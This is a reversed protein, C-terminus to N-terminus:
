GEQVGRQSSARVELLKSIRKAVKVMNEHEWVRVVKWGAARLKKNTDIDREKNREIKARWFEANAKPWTGHKPCGHWFCGDIFIAIRESLFAIDANRRLDTLAKHNVEFGKSGLTILAARLEMEPRTDKPKGAEMRHKAALSSPLPTRRKLLVKKM